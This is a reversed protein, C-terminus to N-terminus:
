CLVLVMAVTYTNSQQLQLLVLVASDTFINIYDYMCFTLRNIYMCWNLINFQKIKIKSDVGWLHM